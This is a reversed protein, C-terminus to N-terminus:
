VEHILWVNERRCRHLNAKTECKIMNGVSCTLM